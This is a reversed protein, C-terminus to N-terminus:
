VAKVFCIVREKEEFGCGIHFKESAENTILCDSALQACGNERAFGEAIAIMERAIGRGRYENEVYIAEVFAVPSSDTGNVYDNRISVNMYAIYKGNIGYLFGIEKKSQLLQACDELIEEYAHHDGFMKFALGAWDQLTSPDAKMINPM